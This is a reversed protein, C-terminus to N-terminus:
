VARLRSFGQWAVVAALGTLLLAFALQMGDSHYAFGAGSALKASLGHITVGLAALTVILMFDMPAYLMAGKKGTKKM